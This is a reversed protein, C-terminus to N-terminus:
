EEMKIENLIVKDGYLEIAKINYAIAADIENKFRGIYIKKKNVRIEVEWKLSRSEWYVGCLKNLTM